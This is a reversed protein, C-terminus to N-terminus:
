RRARTHHLSLRLVPRPRGRAHASGVRVFHLSLAKPSCGDGLREANAPRADIPHRISVAILADSLIPCGGNRHLNRIFKGLSRHL